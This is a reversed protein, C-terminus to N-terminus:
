KLCIWSDRHCGGPHGLALDLSVSPLVNSHGRSLSGPIRFTPTVDRLQVGDRIALTCGGQGVIRPMAAGRGSSGPSVQDKAERRLSSTTHHCRSHCLGPAGVSSCRQEGVGCVETGGGRPWSLLSVLALGAGPSLESVLHSLVEASTVSLM